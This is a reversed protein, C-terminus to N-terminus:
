VIDLGNPPANTLMKICKTLHHSEAEYRSRELCTHVCFVPITDDSM